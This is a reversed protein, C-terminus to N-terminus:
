QPSDPKAKRIVVEVSPHEKNVGLHRVLIKTVISYNDDELIGSNVLFDEPAKLYNSIDRSGKDPFTFIYEMTVPENIKDGHLKPCIALWKKYAKSPFRKQNSGGGYLGNTSPPFPLICHFLIM